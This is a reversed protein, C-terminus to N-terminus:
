ASAKGDGSSAGDNGRETVNEGDQPSCPKKDGGDATEAGNRLEDSECVDSSANDNVDGDSSTGDSNDGDRASPKEDFGEFVDGDDTGSRESRSIVEIEPKHSNRRSGGVYKNVVKEMNVFVFRYLPDYACFCVFGALMLLPITWKLGFLTIDAVVIKMLMLCGYFAAGFFGLKVVTILAIKLWKPLKVKLYFVFDLAYAIIAYPGYFMIFPLAKINVAFFGILAAAVYSFIAGGVSKQTLPLSIALAAVVNIAISVSSIFAQAVVAIVAIACSVSALAIKYSRRM